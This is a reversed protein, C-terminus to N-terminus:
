AKFARKLSVGFAQTLLVLLAWLLVAGLLDVAYYPTAGRTLAWSVGGLILVTVIATVNAWASPMVRREEVAQLRRTLEEAKEVMRQTQITDM